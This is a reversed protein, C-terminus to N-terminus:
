TATRDRVLLGGANANTPGYYIDQGRYLPFKIEGFGGLTGSSSAVFIYDPRAFASGVGPAPAVAYAAPVFSFLSSPVMFFGVIDCDRDVTWKAAGAVAGTAWFTIFRTDGKGTVGVVGGSGAAFFTLFGKTFADTLQQSWESGPDTVGPFLVQAGIGTPGGLEGSPQIQRVKGM